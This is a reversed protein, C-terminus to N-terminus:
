GPKLRLTPRPSDLFEGKTRWRIVVHEKNAYMIDPVEITDDTIM